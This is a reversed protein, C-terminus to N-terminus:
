LSSPLCNTIGNNCPEFDVGICDQMRHVIVRQRLRMKDGQVFSHQQLTRSAVNRPLDLNMQPLTADDVSRMEGWGIVRIVSSSKSQIYEVVLLM